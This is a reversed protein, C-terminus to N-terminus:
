INEVRLLEPYDERAEEETEYNEGKYWIEGTGECDYCTVIRQSPNFPMLLGQGDCEICKVVIDM